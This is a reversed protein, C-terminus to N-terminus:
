KFNLLIMIDDMYPLDERTSAEFRGIKLVNIHCMENDKGDEKSQAEDEEMLTKNGQDIGRNSEEGSKGQWYPSQVLIRHAMM